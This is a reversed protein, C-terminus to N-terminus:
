HQKRLVPQAQCKRSAAISSYALRGLTRLPPLALIWSWPMTLPLVALIRLVGDFGGYIRGGAIVKLERDAEERTIGHAALLREDSSGHADLRHRWDLALALRICRACFSCSDDWIVLILADGRAM